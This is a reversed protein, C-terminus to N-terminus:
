TWRDHRSSDFEGVFDAQGDTLGHLKVQLAGVDDVGEPNRGKAALDVHNWPAPIAQRQLRGPSADETAGASLVAPGRVGEHAKIHDNQFFVVEGGPQRVLLLRCLRGYLREGRMALLQEQGVAAPRAVRHAARRGVAHYARVQGVHAAAQAEAAPM